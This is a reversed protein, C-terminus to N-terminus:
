QLLAMEEKSIAHSSRVLLALLSDTATAWDNLVDAPSRPRKFAVTGAVRDIRMASLMTPALRCLQAESEIENLELLQALRVLSMHSFCHSIVRLNHEVVRDRMDALRQQSQPGAAFVPSAAIDPLGFLAEIQPWRILERTNFLRLLAVHGNGATVETFSKEAIIAHLQGSQEHDHPALLVLLAARQLAALDSTAQYLSYQHRSCELYRREHLCLQGMLDLYRLRLAALREKAEGEFARVGLKRSVIQAQSWSGTALLLRLQELIFEVREAKEMSGFTEVPLEQLLEAAEPMRGAAEHLQSLARTARAREVEVYIRGESVTRIAELLKLQEPSGAPRSLALELTREVAGSVAQKIVSRKKALLNLTESLLDFQNAEFCANIM